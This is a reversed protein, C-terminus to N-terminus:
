EVMEFVLLFILEWFPSTFIEFFKGVIVGSKILKKIKEFIFHITLPYTKVM